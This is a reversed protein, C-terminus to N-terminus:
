RTFTTRRQRLVIDRLLTEACRARIEEYVPPPYLAELKLHNAHSNMAKALNGVTGLGTAHMHRVRLSGHYYPSDGRFVMRVDHEFDDVQTPAFRLDFGGAADLRDRRFLHCCGCVHACPRSYTFQGFDPANEGHYSAQLHVPAEPLWGPGTGMGPPLLHMDAAQIIARRDHRLIQCGYVGHDPAEAMATGFRRLWDQPVLLDDDLFVVWAADRAEPETLLWNRAPPAGINTPLTILRLRGATKEALATLVERTLPDDSGNDLVLIQARGEYPPLDSALLAEMTQRIKDGGNWTYLLIVGPGQPFPGPRDLGRAATDRRLWLNVHWPREKLLADWLSLAEDTHGARFLAEGRRELWLGLPVSDAARAYLAAAGLWDERAFALDALCGTKLMDPLGRNERLLKEFWSRRDHRFALFRALGIWFLNDPDDTRGRDVTAILADIDGTKTFKELRSAISAEPPRIAAAFRALLIRLPPHLFPVVKDLGCLQEATRSEFPEEEWATQLLGCGAQLLTQREPREPTTTKVAELVAVATNVLHVRGSTSELLANRIDQPLHHWPYRM